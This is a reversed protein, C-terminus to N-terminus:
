SIFCCLEAKERVLGSFSATHFEKALTVMAKIEQVSPHTPHDRYQEESSAEKPTDCV